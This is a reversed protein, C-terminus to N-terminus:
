HCIEHYVKACVADDNGKSAIDGTSLIGKLRKNRDLVVLRHLQLKCMKEAAKEVPDDEFCYEIHESMIDRVELDSVGNGKAVGRIAIDRDTIAGILRDNEGIPLFGIDKDRMEQAAEKLTTTPSIFTPSNNMIDKVLM